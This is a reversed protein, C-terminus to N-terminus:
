RAMAMVLFITELNIWLVAMLAASRIPLLFCQFELGTGFLVCLSRDPCPLAWLFQLFPGSVHVPVLTHLSPVFGLKTMYHVFPCCLPPSVLILSFNLYNLLLCRRYPPILFCLPCVLLPSIEVLFLLSLSPLDLFPLCFSFAFPLHILVADWFPRQLLKFLGRCAWTVLLVLCLLRSGPSTLSLPMVFLHCPVSFIIMLGCYSLTWVALLYLRCFITSSVFVWVVVCYFCNLRFIRSIVFVHRCSLCVTLLWDWLPPFFIMLVGCQPAWFILPWFVECKSLNPHLGYSPDQRQLVDLFLSLASPTGVLIGDDLYWLQFCLGGLVHCKSLFALLM